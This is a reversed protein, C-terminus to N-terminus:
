PRYVAITEVMTAASNPLEVTMVVAGELARATTTALVSAGKVSDPSITGRSTVSVKRTPTIWITM